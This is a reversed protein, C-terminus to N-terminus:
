GEELESYRNCADVLDVDQQSGRIRKGSTWKMAAKFVAEKAVAIELTDQSHVLANEKAEAKVSPQASLAQRANRIHEQDKSCLAWNSAVSILPKLAEIIEDIAQSFEDRWRDDDWEYSGRGLRLWERKRIAEKVAAVGDAVTTRDQELAEELEAVRAEAAVAREKMECICPYDHMVPVCTDGSMGYPCDSM